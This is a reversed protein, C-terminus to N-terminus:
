RTRGDHSVLRVPGGRCGRAAAFLVVWSSLVAAFALAQAAVAFDVPYLVGTIYHAIFGEPPLQNMGAAARAWRELDTLPCPLGLAISSIGWVVMPLHLWISRPWRWALFGGIVLYGLFAFHVAITLAVVM